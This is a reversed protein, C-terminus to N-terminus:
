SRHLFSNKQIAIYLFGAKSSLGKSSATLDMPYEIPELRDGFGLDM